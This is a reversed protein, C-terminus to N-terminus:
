SSRSLPGRHQRGRQVDNGAGERDRQDRGRDAVEGMGRIQSSRSLPGRHQRWRWGRHRHLSISNCRPCTENSLPRPRPRRGRKAKPAGCRRNARRGRCPTGVRGPGRCRRATLTAADVRVEVVDRDDTAETKLSSGNRADRQVEVVDRHVAAKTTETPQPGEAPGRCRRPPRRDRGPEAGESLRM